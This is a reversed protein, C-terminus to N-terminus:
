GLDPGLFRCLREDLGTLELTVPIVVTEAYGMDAMIQSNQKSARRVTLGQQRGPSAATAAKSSGLL